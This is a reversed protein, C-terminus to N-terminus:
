EFCEDYFGDVKQSVKRRSTRSSGTPRSRSPASSPYEPPSHFKKKWGPGQPLVSKHARSDLPEYEFDEDASQKKTRRKKTAPAPSSSSISIVEVEAPVVFSQHASHVGESDFSKATFGQLEQKVSRASRSPQTSNPFFDEDSHDSEHGEDFKRMAAEYDLTKRTKKPEAAPSEVDMMSTQTMPQKQSTGTSRLLEEISPFPSSSQAQPETMGKSSIPTRERLRPLPDPIVSTEDGVSDDVLLDPQRTSEPSPQSSPLALHPFTESPTERPPFEEQAFSFMPKSMIGDVDFAGAEDTTDGICEEADAEVDAATGDMERTTPVPLDQSAPRGPRATEVGDMAEASENEMIRSTDDGGSQPMEENETIVSDLVFSSEGFRPMQQGSQISVMKSNEQTELEMMSSHDEDEEAGIGQLGRDEEMAVTTQQTASVEVEMSEDNALYDSVQVRAKANGSTEAGDAFSGMQMSVDVADGTSAEGSAAGAAPEGATTTAPILTALPKQLLKPEILEVWEVFRHGSDEEEMEDLDPVEFKGYVREGTEEDYLRENKERDRKALILRLTTDTSGQLVLGTVAVLEPQWKTAKSMLLQKWTIVTGPKAMEKSLVPLSAFDKPLSPLDDLDTFQSSIHSDDDYILCSEEKTENSKLESTQEITVSKGKANKKKNAPQTQAAPAQDFCISDDEVYSTEYNESQRKRKRM